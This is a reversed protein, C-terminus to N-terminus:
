DQRGGGTQRAFLGAPDHCVIVSDERALCLLTLGADRALRAALDTPASLTVLMPIGAMMAKAVLEYSCRATLMAFGSARDINASALAGILKDFANHRGVDERVLRLDGQWDVFTAAHAAGTAQNLSQRDRLATLARFIVDPTVPGPSPVKRAAPVAQELEIVGCLGCGTQGVMGRRRENLRGALRAPLDIRVLLGPSVERVEVNAIDGVTDALGDTLTFGIAFDEIDLPTAMMVVHAVGNYTLSVPVEAIMRRVQRDSARATDSFLELVEVATSGQGMETCEFTRGHAAM